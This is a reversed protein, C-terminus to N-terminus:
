ATGTWEVSLKRKSQVCDKLYLNSLSQYPIGTEQSLEKFYDVIEEELHINVQKKLRKTYPNKVSKSFTYENQVSLKLRTSM